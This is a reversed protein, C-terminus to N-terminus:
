DEQAFANPNDAITLDRGETTEIAATIFMAKTYLTLSSAKKKETYDRQKNEGAVIRGKKDLNRKEEMFM